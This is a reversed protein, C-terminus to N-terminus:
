QGSAPQKRGRHRSRRTPTSTPCQRPMPAHRCARTNGARRHKNCDRESESARLMSEAGASKDM